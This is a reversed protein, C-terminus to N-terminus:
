RGSVQVRREFATVKWSTIEVLALKLRYHGVPALLNNAYIIGRGERIDRASLDVRFIERLRLVEAGSEDLLTGIVGLQTEVKGEDWGRLGHPNIKIRFPLGTQDGGQRSPLLDMEAGIERFGAQLDRPSRLTEEPEFLAAVFDRKASSQGPLSEFQAPIRADPHLIEVHISRDERGPDNTYYGLLYLNGFIDDSIQAMVGDFDLIAEFGGFHKGGTELSLSAFSGEKLERGRSAASPIHSGATPGIYLQAASPVLVTYIAVQNGQALRISEAAKHYANDMGDSIIIVVRQAAGAAPGGMKRLLRDLSDYLATQGLQRQARDFARRALARTSTFDQFSVLIDTFGFVGVRTFDHVSDLLTRAAAIQESRTAFTSGSVDILFALTLPTSSGGSNRPPEFFSVEQLAGNEFIRFQSRELQNLFRGQSDTVSFRLTALNVDVRINQESLSGSSQGRAAPLLLFLLLFSTTAVARRIM